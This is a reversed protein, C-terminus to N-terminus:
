FRVSGDNQYFLVATWSTFEGLSGAKTVYSRQLHIFCCTFTETYQVGWHDQFDNEWPLLLPWVYMRNSEIKVPHLPNGFCCNM